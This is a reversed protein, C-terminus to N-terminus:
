KLQGIQGKIAEAAKGAYEGLFGGILLGFLVQIATLTATSITTLAGLAAPNTNFAIALLTGFYGVGLIGGFYFGLGAKRQGETATGFLAQTLKAFM